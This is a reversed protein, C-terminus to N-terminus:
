AKSVTTSDPVVDTPRNCDIPVLGSTDDWRYNPPDDSPVVRTNYVLTWRNALNRVNKQAELETPFRLGNGLWKGSSDAQVQPAYSKPM